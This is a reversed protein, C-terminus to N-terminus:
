EQEIYPRDIKIVLSYLPNIEKAEQKMRDVIEKTKENSYEFPVVLDFIVNINNQGDTIRLDHFSINKYDDVVRQIADIAQRVIPSDFDIPDMHITLEIGLRSYCIQEIKDIVEHAEVINSKANVEAHVSAFKRGPGYDHILLDHVGLIYDNSTILQELNEIDEKKAPRGLLDGIIELVIKIGNICIIIAIVISMIADVYFYNEKLLLGGVVLAVIIVSSTLVDSISDTATALLVKSNIQKGLYKNYSYMWLKVFLSVVLIAVSVYFKVGTALTDIDGDVWGLGILLKKGSSIILEVGVIMIVFAVILTAIYEIRGHGFPHDKDPKKNSLKASIISVVSSFSDTLNNFADSMISIANIIIGIILKISFLLLNCIIGLIGGLVGYQERVNQNNTNKYDKITKKVILKIM